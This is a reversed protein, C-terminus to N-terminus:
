CEKGFYAEEVDVMGINDGNLELVDAIPYFGIGM